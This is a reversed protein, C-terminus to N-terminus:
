EVKLLASWSDVKDVADLMRELRDSDTISELRSAFRAPPEGLHKRGFKVVYQRKVILAGETRGEVRGEKRLAQAITMGMAEVERKRKANSQLETALLHWRERDAGGEIRLPGM